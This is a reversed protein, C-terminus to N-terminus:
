IGLAEREDDSVEAGSFDISCDITRTESTMTSNQCGGTRREVTVVGECESEESAAFDITARTKGNKKYVIKGEVLCDCRESSVLDEIVVKELTADANNPDFKNCSATLLVLGGMAALSMVKKM